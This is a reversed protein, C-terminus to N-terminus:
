KDWVFIGSNPFFYSFSFSLGILAGLVVSIVQLYCLAVLLNPMKKQVNYDYFRKGAGFGTFVTAGVIIQTLILGYPVGRMFGLEFESFYKDNFVEARISKPYFIQITLLLVFSLGLCCFFTLLLPLGYVSLHIM